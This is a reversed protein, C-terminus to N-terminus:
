RIEEINCFPILLNHGGDRGIGDRVVGTLGVVYNDADM